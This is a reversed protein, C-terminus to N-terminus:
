TCLGCDKGGFRDGFICSKDMKQVAGLYFKFFKLLGCDLGFYHLVNASKKMLCFQALSYSAIMRYLGGSLSHPSQM